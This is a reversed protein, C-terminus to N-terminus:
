FPQAAHELFSEFCFEDSGFHDLGPNSLSKQGFKRNCICQYTQFAELDSKNKYKISKVEETKYGNSKCFKIVKERIMADFPLDNYELFFTPDFSKIDPTCNDFQMLNKYIFSDYFPIAMLLDKSWNDKLSSISVCNDEASKTSFILNLKKCGRANKAFVIVKHKQECCALKLGFILEIGLEKSKTFAQPFGTLSNEVLVLQKLNNEQAIDFVSDSGDTNELNPENLTLISKGISYHSTFIPIM